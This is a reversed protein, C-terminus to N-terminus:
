TKWWYKKDYVKYAISYGVLQIGAIAAILGTKDSYGRIAFFVIILMEIYLTIAFMLSRSKNAIFVVREETNAIEYKTLRKPEKLIRFYQVLRISGTIAIGMGISRIYNVDSGTGYGVVSYIIMSIGAVLCLAMYIMRKKIM